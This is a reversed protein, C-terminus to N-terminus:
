LRAAGLKYRYHGTVPFAFLMDEVQTGRGINHIIMPTGAASKEASVIGIHPLKPGVMWTVIDGPQYDAAHRTVPLASGHRTFFVQLNPVRRHDINRDPRKLQWLKPYAAWAKRMDEHVLQQLDMGLKRYARIVVDTCVGRVMPVDGGPYALGAYAPDYHLTVGVQSRAANVLADAPAAGAAGALCAAGLVIARLLDFNTTMDEMNGRNEGRNM